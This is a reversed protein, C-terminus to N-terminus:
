KKNRPGTGRTAVGGDNFNRQDGTKRIPANGTVVPHPQPSPVPRQIPASVPKPTSQQNNSGKNKDDPM